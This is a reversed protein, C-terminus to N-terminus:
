PHNPPPYGITDITSRILKEFSEIDADGLPGNLEAFYEEVAVELLVLYISM